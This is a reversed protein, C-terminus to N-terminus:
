ILLVVLLGTLSVSLALCVRERSNQTEARRAALHRLQEAAFRLSGTIQIVDGCLEVRCLIEAAEVPRFCAFVEVWSKQLAKGSKLGQLVQEIHMGSVSRQTEMRLIEPLPLMQWRVAGEMRELANALELLRRQELRQGAIWRVCGTGGALLLM